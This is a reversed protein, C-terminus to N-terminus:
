MFAKFMLITLFLCHATSTKNAASIYGVCHWCNFRNDPDYKKKLLELRDRNSGWFQNVWDPENKAAHNFGAGSNPFENRLKQILREDFTEMQFISKRMAPHVSTDDHAVEMMKGGIIYNFTHWGNNVMWKFIEKMESPQEKVFKLPILRSAINFENLGTQDTQMEDPGGRVSFYSQDCKITKEINGLAIIGKYFEDSLMDEEDGEFYFIGFNFGWYGGWNPSLLPAADVLFNIWEYVTKTDWYPAYFDSTQFSFECFPKIQHLQYHVSLTVGFTGGGGGRLAWFLDENECKSATVVSGDALVVQFDTVQDIGMGYLRASASLGGGMLWGGAAAVTLGGGGIIHYSNGVAKYAEEWVEGGGVQLAADYTKECVQYDNKIISFKRYKRMWILLAGDGMSSGAYNHGSTKVVVQINHKNAFKIAEVVDNENSAAVSYQPINWDSSSKCQKKSCDHYQMCRGEGNNELLYAAGFTTSQASCSKSYESTDSIDYVKGGTVSIKLKNWEAESPWCTKNNPMCYDFNTKASAFFPCFFYAILLIPVIMNKEETEQM